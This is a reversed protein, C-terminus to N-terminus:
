GLEGFWGRRASWKLIELVPTITAALGIVLAWDVASLGFTGLLLQFFPVYVILVLLALEALIAINLWRNAFPRVLASVRDSRFNYAKFFEITVLLVFIMSMAEPLSRGSDL